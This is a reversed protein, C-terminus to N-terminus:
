RQMAGVGSGHRTMPQTGMIHASVTQQVSSHIFSQIPQETRDAKVEKTTPLLLYPQPPPHATILLSEGPELFFSM